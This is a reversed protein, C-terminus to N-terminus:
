KCDSWLFDTFNKSSVLIKKNKKKLWSVLKSETNDPAPVEKFGFGNKLSMTSQKQMSVCEKAFCIM